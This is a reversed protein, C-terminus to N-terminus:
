GAKTICKGFTDLFSDLTVAGQPNKGSSQFTGCATNSRCYQCTKKGCDAAFSLVLAGLGDECAFFEFNHLKHADAFASVDTKGYGGYLTCNAEELRLAELKIVIGNGGIILAIHVEDVKLIFDAAEADM